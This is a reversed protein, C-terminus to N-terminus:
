FLSFKLHDKDGTRSSLKTAVATATANLSDDSKSVPDPSLVEGNPFVLSNVKNPPELADNCGPETGADTAPVLSAAVDRNSGDICTAREPLTSSIPGLDSPVQDPIDEWRVPRTIVPGSAHNSEELGSAMPNDLMENQTDFVHNVPSIIPKTVVEPDSPGMVQVAFESQPVTDEKDPYEDQQGMVTECDESIMHNGYCKKCSIIKEAWLVYFFDRMALSNFKM